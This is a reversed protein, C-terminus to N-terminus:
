PEACVKLEDMTTKKLCDRVEYRRLTAQCRRVFKDKEGVSELAARGIASGITKVLAAEGPSQPKGTAEDAIDQVGVDVIHDFLAMCDAETAPEIYDCGTLVTLSLALLSPNRLKIM